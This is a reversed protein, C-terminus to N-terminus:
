AGPASGAAVCVHLCGVTGSEGQGWLAAQITDQGLQGRCLQAPLPFGRGDVHLVLLPQSVKAEVGQLHLAWGPVSIPLPSAWSQWAGPLLVWCHEGLCEGLSPCHGSSRDPLRVERGGSGLETCCPAQPM